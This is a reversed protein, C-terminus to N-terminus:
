RAFQAFRGINKSAFNNQRVTFDTLFFQAYEFQQTVFKINIAKSTRCNLPGHGRAIDSGAVKLCGFVASREESFRGPDPGNVQCGWSFRLRFNGAMAAKNPVINPGTPLQSCGASGCHTIAKGVNGVCGQTMLRWPIQARM